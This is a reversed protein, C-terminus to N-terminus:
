IVLETLIVIAALTRQRPAKAGQNPTRGVSQWGTKALCSRTNLLNELQLCYEVAVSAPLPYETKRKKIRRM